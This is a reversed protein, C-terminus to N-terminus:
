PSISQKIMVMLSRMKEESTFYSREGRHALHVYILLTHVAQPAKQPTGDLLDQPPVVATQAKRLQVVNSVRQRLLSTAHLHVQAQPLDDGMMEAIVYLRRRESENRPAFKHKLVYLQAMKM